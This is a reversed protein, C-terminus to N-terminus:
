LYIGNMTRLLDAVTNGNIRQLAESSIVQVPSPADVPNMATRTATIIVEDARYTKTTDHEAAIVSVPFFLTSFVVTNWKYRM